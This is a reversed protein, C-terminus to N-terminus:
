QSMIQWAGQRESKMLDNTTQEVVDVMNNYEGILAGIADDGEWVLKENLKGPKFLSLRNALLQLPKTLFNILLLGVGWTVLLLSVYVILLKSIIIPIDQATGIESEYANIAAFGQLENNQFISFVSRLYTENKRKYKNIIIAYSNNRINDMVGSNIMKVAPSNKAIAVSSVLLEGAKNYLDIDCHKRTALEALLDVPFDALSWNYLEKDEIIVKRVIEAIYLQREYTINLNNQRLFLFTTTAIIFFLSITMAILSAQIRLHIPLKAM